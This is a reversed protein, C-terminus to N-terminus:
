DKYFEHINMSDVDPLCNDCFPSIWGLSVKTAVQGCKICTYYSMECYKNLIEHYEDYCEKNVGSDYWRLGGYKEKIDMIRYDDLAEYKKLVNCIEECMQEGFAKRWGDPMNDLETYSYDYDAVVDGTWRSRPLLFPYKEILKKNYEVQEDTACRIM